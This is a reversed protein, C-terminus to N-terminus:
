MHRREWCHGKSRQVIEQARRREIDAPLANEAGVPQPLNANIVNQLKARSLADEIDAATRSIDQVIHGLDIIDAKIGVRAVDFICSFMIRIAAPKDALMKSLRVDRLEFRKIRDHQESDNMM